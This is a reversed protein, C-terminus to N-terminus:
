LFYKGPNMFFREDVKKYLEDISSDNSIIYDFLVKKITEVKESPHNMTEKLSPREILWMEGKEKIKKVENEFRVDSVVINRYMRLNKRRGSEVLGKEQSYDYKWNKQVIEAVNLFYDIWMNENKNRGYETGLLQLFVRASGEEKELHEGWVEIIKDADFMNSNLEYIKEKVKNKDFKFIRNREESSGFLINSDLGFVTKVYRKLPDALCIKIYSYRNVLYNAVTDKGSGAKGCIGIIM